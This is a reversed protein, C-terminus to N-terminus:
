GGVRLELRQELANGNADIAYVTLTQEGPVEARYVFAGDRLSMSGSDFFFKLLRKRGLDDPPAELLKVEDNVLVEEKEFRFPSFLPLLKVSDPSPRNFLRENVLAAAETLPEIDRGVNRLFFVMNAAAFLVVSGSSSAFVVDEMESNEIREVGPLQFGALLQLLMRRADVLSPLEYVNARLIVDVKTGSRRWFTQTVPVGAGIEFSQSQELRWGRLSAPTLFFRSVFLKSGPAPSDAWKDFEFVKARAEGWGLDVPPQQQPSAALGIFRRVRYLPASPVCLNEDGNVLRFRYSHEGIQGFRLNRPLLPTLTKPNDDGDVKLCADFVEDNEKCEGAWAVEHFLFSGIVFESFGIRITPKLPFDLKDVAPLIQSQSLDCGVCNAFTSVITACDTCNVLRYNTTERRLMSLFATCNFKGGDTLSCPAKNWEDYQLVDPGLDFVRQTILSAAAEPTRAGAAWRCAYELVETWPLQTNTPDHPVEQWPPRPQRLVTYIRHASDAFDTWPADPAARFQWRWAIDNVGVGAEWIRVNTLEFTEFGTEGDDFVVQKEKVEGLVGGGALERLVPRLLYTALTELSPALALRPTTRADLARVQIIQRGRADCRFKAQITLTHGRTERIAYAAPSDEPNTNVGRRWEPVNVFQTENRRLSFGDGTASAPDHNFKIAELLVNM